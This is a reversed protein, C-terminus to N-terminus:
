PSRPRLMEIVLVQDFVGRNLALIQEIAQVRQLRFIRLDDLINAPLPRIIPRSNWSKLWVRGITRFGTTATSSSLSFPESDPKM